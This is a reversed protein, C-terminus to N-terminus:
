VSVVCCQSIRWDNKTVLVAWLASFLGCVFLALGFGFWTKWLNSAFCLGFHKYEVLWLCLGAMYECDQSKHISKGENIFLLAAVFCKQLRCFATLWLWWGHLVEDEHLRCPSPLSPFAPWARSDLFCATSSFRQCALCDLLHMPLALCDLSHQRQAAQM